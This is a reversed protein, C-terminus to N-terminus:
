LSLSLKYLSSFGGTKLKKGGFNRNESIRQEVPKSVWDYSFDPICPKQRALNQPSFIRWSFDASLKQTM